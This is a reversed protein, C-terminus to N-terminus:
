ALVDVYGQVNVAVGSGTVKYDVGSALTAGVPCQLMVVEVVGAAAGSAVAQGEDTSSDGSRLALEDNAATPTYTCKFIGVKGGAPISGSVNVAAFTASSGSTVDTAVSARYWMWRSEGDGRQDWARLNASGDTLVYGIRRYSDYRFPLYPAANSALSLLCAVPEYKTSDAIVYVAYMSSNALVAQDCGNAGVVLGNIQAGYGLGTGSDDVAEELIIDDINLHDRAAGVAVNLVKASVYDLNLGNVYKLGANVVPTNPIPM